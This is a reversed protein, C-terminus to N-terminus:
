RVRRADDSDSMYPALAAIIDSDVLLTGNAAYYLLESSGHTWDDGGGGRWVWWAWGIDHQQLLDAVDEVYARRGASDAVGHVVSWQNVFLPVDASARLAGAWNAFNRAHWTRDFTTNAAAGEPCCETAWGAYLDKCAYSGPYADVAGDGFVFASPEFYDFTYITNPDDIIVDENLLWLKYYSGPGVLCPTAADVAHVAACGKSYFDRVQSATADKDRPESLIEYALINDVNRYRTAVYVWADFLM